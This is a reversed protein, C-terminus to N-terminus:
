NTWLRGLFIREVLELLHELTKGEFTESDCGGETSGCSQHAPSSPKVAAIM